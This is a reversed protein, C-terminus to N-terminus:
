CNYYLDNDVRKPFDQNHLVRSYAQSLAGFSIAEFTEDFALELMRGKKQHHCKTHVFAGGASFLNYTRGQLFHTIVSISVSTNEGQLLYIM